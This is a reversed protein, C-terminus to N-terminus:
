NCSIFSQQLWESQWLSTCGLSIHKWVSSVVFLVMRMSIEAKQGSLYQTFCGKDYYYSGFNQGYGM